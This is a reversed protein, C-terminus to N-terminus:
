KDQALVELKRITALAERLATKGVEKEFGAQLKDFARIVRLACKKGQPKLSLHFSRADAPDVVRQVFGKANAIGNAGPFHGYLSDFSWNEEYIVVIHRIKALGAPVAQASPSLALAM